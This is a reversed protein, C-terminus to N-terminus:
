YLCRCCSAEDHIVAVMETMRATAAQYVASDERKDVTMVMVILVDDKVDYVLRYGQKRLKFKAISRWHAM